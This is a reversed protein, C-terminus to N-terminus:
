SSMKGHNALLIFRASWKAGQLLMAPSRAIFECGIASHPFGPVARNTFLHSLDSRVTNANIRTLIELALCERTFADVISLIRLKTGNM